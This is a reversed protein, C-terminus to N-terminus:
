QLNSVLAKVKDKGIEVEKAKGYFGRDLFGLAAIVKLSPSYASSTIFGIKKNDKFIETWKEFEKNSNLELKVLKKATIGKGINKIRAIVEQGVYCGKEYSIAREGIESLIAKEDFDIGFLPIGAELRLINYTENSIKMLNYKKGKNFILEIIKKYNIGEFFLDFSGGNSRKTKIITIEINENNNKIQNEKNIPLKANTKDLTENNIKKSTFESNKLQIKENFLNKLLLISKPGQLSLLAYKLTIDEVESKALAAGEKLKELIKNKQIFPLNILLFDKFKYIYCDSLVRGFKDLFAAYIGFNEKLNKIDNSAIGNIFDIRGEGKVKIKGEFSFDFLGVNNKVTHYECLIKQNIM